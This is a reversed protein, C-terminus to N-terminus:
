WPYTYPQRYFNRGYGTYGYGPYAPQGYFAGYPVYRRGAGRGRGSGSWRRGPVLNTFGPRGSGACYGAARGTMPGMGRPGTGDGFPM